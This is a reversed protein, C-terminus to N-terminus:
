QVVLSVTVTRELNGSHAALAIPYMGPPTSASTTVTFQVSGSGPLSTVSWKSTAGPIQSVGNQSFTTKTNYGDLPIELLTYVAATGHTVTLSGQDQDVFWFDPADAKIQCPGTPDVSPKQFVSHKERGTTSVWGSWPVTTFYAPVPETFPQAVSGNWWTNYDSGLTAVFNTWASGAQDFDDFLQQGAGGEVTNSTMTLNNTLLNYVQATEYNVVPIPVGGQVGISPIQSGLNNAIVNGTLTVYTSARLAVGGDFYLGLVSNSCVYSNSLSLPGESKEVFVGDRLNGVSILNSATVNQDDTDWHVGHTMNFFMKAGNVTNNHEAFFHFGGGGWGYIGGQAGRWNTYDGENSTWLGYKSMIAHFGREGNHRALSNQVTFHNTGTFGIGGANSWKFASNDILINNSSGFSVQDNDRCPNGYQFTMGRLVINSRNLATFLSPRTSVEVAASGIKTGAPPYIYVVANTEDVFFSGLGLQNLTLVQTLAVGNIFIMERRLVINQEFPGGSSPTCLGWTYPWAQTYVGPMTTVPQWGTWLDAGSVFVTGPTTAEFTIPLATAKPNSGLGASERYYGPAMWVHTGVSHLNNNAAVATAKAFTKFPLAQTGPNSDSGKAVDVYINAKELSENVNAQGSALACAALLGAAVSSFLSIAKM